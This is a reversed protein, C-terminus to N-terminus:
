LKYSWGGLYLLGATQLVNRPKKKITVAYVPYRGQEVDEHLRIKFWNRLWRGQHQEARPEGPQCAGEATTTPM